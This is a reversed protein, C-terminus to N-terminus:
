GVSCCGGAGSDEEVVIVGSARRKMLTKALDGLNCHAAYFSNWDFKTKDVGFSVMMENVKGTIFEYNPRDEFKLGLIHYQIETLEVPLESCLESDIAERKMVGVESPKLDKSNWPLEGKWFEMVCYFWSMIDDVRGLDLNSHANLSAYKKTGVFIPNIAPPFQRGTEPDLFRKCLGFDILALPSSAKQQLLFNSPKIDRHIWGQDHLNKIVRLMQDALPLTIDPQFSNRYQRRVVSLPAGLLNM